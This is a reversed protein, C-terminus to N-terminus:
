CNQSLLTWGSTLLGGPRRPAVTIRQISMPARKLCCSSSKWNGSTLLARSHREVLAIRTSLIQGTNWYCSSLSGSIWANARGTARFQWWCFRSDMETQSMSMLARKSLYSPLAMMATHFCRGHCRHRAM